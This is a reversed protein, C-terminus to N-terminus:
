DWRVGVETRGSSRPYEDEADSFWREGEGLLSVVSPLDGPIEVEVGEEVLVLSFSSM